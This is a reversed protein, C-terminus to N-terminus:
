VHHCALVFAALTARNKKPCFDHGRRELLDMRKVVLRTLTRCYRYTAVLPRRHNFAVPLAVLEVM